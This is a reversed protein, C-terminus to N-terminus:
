PVSLEPFYTVLCPRCLGHTTRMPMQDVFQPVWDWVEEQVRRTRRCNACMTLLGDNRRYGNAAFTPEIESRTMPREGIQSNVVLLSDVANGPGVSIRMHYHRLSTPSSCEYLQEWPRRTRRVSDLAALYFESLPFSLFDALARGIPYPRVLHPAGNAVAFKDWAANCYTIRFHVDLCYIVSSDIELFRIEPAIV